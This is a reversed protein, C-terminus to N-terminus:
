ALIDQIVHGHVDTLRVDRGAYRYTLDEHNLGLQHLVTAWIDYTTVKKDVVHYGFEDTAGYITGGRIGGGAMWLSFGYPNHDRGNSGQSFPTRGFEGTFIVITEDLLGRSKLDELLAAIPQDVQYAMARHGKELEGHQDWPNAAGGAGIGKTLCSLEVFRVGREVLRRALLAQRAFAAKEPDPDDLGYLKRTAESEGKIECVEPVAAQMRFATEFNQIAAEVQDEHGLSDAFRRDLREVFDLRARQASTSQRPAINPVAPIADAKLISAQHQAPLFGSSYLGVGGHAPVAKGSQLVCYAPLNENASGLGYSIWAGASPHGLFPFGSHFLFNGQAHENVTTTMSRVVALHDACAGIRPFIDSVPIESQGCPRFEFPSPFVKGNNNFQTREVKVPMEQGAFDRLRPKPDFSDLHSVGGSMYCLIVSRAKAPPASAIGNRQALLSALAALGFGSSTRALLSRRSCSSHPDASM